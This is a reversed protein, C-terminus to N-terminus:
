NLFLLLSKFTLTVMNHKTIKKNIINNYKNFWKITMLRFFDFVLWNPWYWNFTNWVTWTNVGAGAREGEPPLLPVVRPAAPGEPIEDQQM